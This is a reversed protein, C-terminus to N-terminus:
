KESKRGKKEYFYLVIKELYRKLVIQIEEKSDIPRVLINRMGIRKAGFVDTFLQDGVFITNSLDTGMLEMAKRYNKGSPKHADYIYKTGIEKNFRLVREEKNNSILCSKIGLQELKKFLAIARPTADAGHEVLTNDIDFLVGKIGQRQLAEFDIEYTSEQIADPFFREFM